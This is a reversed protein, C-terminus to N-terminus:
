RAETPRPLSLELGPQRPLRIVFTSGEGPTSHADITGGHAEVIQRSIFLGLGLGGYNTSSAREFREFIRQLDEPRIGGGGDSVRVEARAGIARVSVVVPKSDGYKIANSVVNTLVQELRSGDWLGWVPRDCDLEVRCGDLQALSAQRAVVERALEALDVRERELRLRGASIRSVDLLDDILRALRTTQRGAVELKHRWRAPGLASQPALAGQMSQLQIQLATLPTRLEHSAISLFEDRLRVAAQAREMATVAAHESARLREETRRRETIDEVEIVTGVPVGAELLPSATFAVPYFTGDPRVFVDEGHEQMRRPLARDIPCADIPYPSGDPRTHHVLDHLPRDLKQVEDFSLGFIKEAAPNMFTCRQRADTMVLGLTANATITGTRRQAALLDRRALVHDTVEIASALVGSVRGQTDHVPQWTVDFWCEQLRGDRMLEVRFERVSRGKGTRYVEDLTQLVPTGQLEPLSEVLPRGPKVRGGTMEDHRANSFQAVHDPGAYVVVAFPVGQLIRELRSRELELARAADREKAATAMLAARSDRVIQNLWSFAAGNALFLAVGLAEGTDLARDAGPGLVFLRVALAASLGTALLGPLLGCCWAVLFVAPLFLIYPLVAGFLPDLLLRLWAAALPVAVAAVYRLARWPGEIPEPPVMTEDTM